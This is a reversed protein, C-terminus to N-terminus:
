IVFDNVLDIENNINNKRVPAVAAIPGAPMRRRKPERRVEPVIKMM